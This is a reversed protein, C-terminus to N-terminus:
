GACRVLKEARQADLVDRELEVAVEAVEDMYGHSVALILTGNNDSPDRVIAALADVKGPLKHPGIRRSLEALFNENPEISMRYPKMTYYGNTYYNQTPDSQKIVQWEGEVVRNAGVYAYRM